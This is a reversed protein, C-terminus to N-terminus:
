FKWQRFAVLQKNKVVIYLSVRPVKTGGCTVTKKVFDATDQLTSNLMWCKFFVHWHSGAISCMCTFILSRLCANLDRHQWERIASNGQALFVLVNGASQCTPIKVKQCRMLGHPPRFLTTLSNRVPERGRKRVKTRGWKKRESERRGRGWSGLAQFLSSYSFIAYRSKMTAVGQCAALLHCFM